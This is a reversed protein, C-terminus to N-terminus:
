IDYERRAYILGDLPDINFLPVSSYQCETKACRIDAENSTNALVNTMLSELSENDFEDPDHDLYYRIVLERNESFSVAIARISPYIEGLLSRWIWLILWNPLKAHDKM